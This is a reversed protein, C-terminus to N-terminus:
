NLQTLKCRIQLIFPHPKYNLNMWIDMFDTTSTEFATLTWIHCKLTAWAVAYTVSSAREFDEIVGSLQQHLKGLVTVLEGYNALLQQESARQQKRSRYAV